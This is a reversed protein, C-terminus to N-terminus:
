YMEQALKNLNAIKDKLMEYDHKVDELYMVYDTLENTNKFGRNRMFKEFYEKAYKETMTEEKDFFKVISNYLTISEKKIDNMYPTNIGRYEGCYLQGGERGREEGIVLKGNDDAYAYYGCDYPQSFSGDFCKIMTM